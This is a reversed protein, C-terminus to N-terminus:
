KVEVEDIFIFADDGFGQHGPPLKGFNTAVVKVYRAKKPEPLQLSLNQRLVSDLLAPVTHSVRGVSIFTAGDNSVFYEVDAPLLIWSRSDQLYSSNLYSISRHEKLDIISEFNVKQYGQWNGKRWNEDGYIGDILGDEGGATYQKNPQNVLQINWNNPKKYFTATVTTHPINEVSAEITQSTHITFSLTDDQVRVVSDQKGKIRMRIIMRGDDMRNYISVRLSDSFTKSSAEVIPSISSVERLVPPNYTYAPLTTLELKQGNLYVEEFLSQNIVYENKGPCVPYFGMASFVYWASMQGCDENGSLGDPANQYLEKMIQSVRQKMKEPKGAYAYLYAYNHSPENGHAYQGIMGTMDAQQRGEIQNPATFLADLRHELTAPSMRQQLGEMDHPVFLSYQWANAETYHNNVENPRFPQYWAGNSRPQFFQSQSNYVHHWGGASQMFHEYGRVQRKTDSIFKAICWDDYAYELTKSVSEHEDEVELFGKQHFTPISWEKYRTADICAKIALDLDFGRIGKAYADAIVSVSHYGIMCNTENSSLEWMPLRGSQQYQALFTKIFDLNRERQVLNCLPHLARFTDWLSFVTYYNFGDTQHVTFDRGLYRGDADSAISPHIFCHYLATYFIAQQDVTGGRVKIASLEKNWSAEADAKVKNFDWHKLEAEMNKRAGEMDVQSIAVKVLLPDKKGTEFTFMAKVGKGQAQKNGVICQNSDGNEFRRIKKSFVMYFFVRQNTAWAKSYRYGRVTSDNVVEIRGNLLEDRHTLDLVISAQTTKPFTYKHFGVRTTTTLEAQIHHKNLLVSYYGATAKEHTHSFASQYNKPNIYSHEYGKVKKESVVPMLMIDGYDSCGTGSLHTHSFGYIVSDSYHYGSCGDWSGDVRTDPSLQVMGFPVVAGPFTHGHGGTGVFPNVLGALNQQAFVQPLFLCLFAGLCLYTLICRM